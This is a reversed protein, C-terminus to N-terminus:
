IRVNWQLFCQADLAIVGRKQVARESKLVGLLGIIFLYTLLLSDELRRKMLTQRQFRIEILTFKADLGHSANNLTNMVLLTM